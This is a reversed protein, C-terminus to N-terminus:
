SENEEVLLRRLVKGVFNKPLEKRFEIQWPVAYEDLRRQCLATLEEASITVGDKPVVYAKVKQFPWKPPQVGVVAVEKVKPHEYLVEEVDRPYVQYEGALIMDRKRAVIEFYGDDDMRAVDGTLLWGDRTIYKRSDEGANWYGLMVQPGRVALEGLQNAPLDKGTALDVIKAETSPFPIGITGIKRLSNLPNAHTGTTAETLGYAEVLRGRTLKEFAEQVEVPLPAAGSICAKISSIGFRRVGPYNNIAVYMTPVGPFITPRYRHIAKLVSETAFTPLIVMGAALAVPVNMAATMGYVHSFPLVSLFVERGEKLAPIWHRTQMANAVLNRHSLMVGKPQATTGSTYQILALDDPQVEIEPAHSGHQNIEASLLVMGHELQFPLRHGEKAERTLTFLARKLPPLYDKVNTFLIHKLNTRAKVIRATEALRTLTVLATAGADQIQRALEDPESLPTTFVVVGGMKLVGYYAIVTQPLNPLLLLVKDGPLLGKARLLNAFRSSERNLFRYSLRQGEFIIATKNPFRRAASRLLRHMPVRPVGVTYPVGEDYHDLWPREKRLRARDDDLPQTGRRGKAQPGEVFRELARNVAERRELMVMHASVGVDVEEANPIARAVEALLRPALVRDRNGRIVLTPMTLGRFLSWGNWIKFANHYYAQLAGPPSAITKKVFAAHLINLLQTPLSLLALTTPALRYEGSAAILVLKEVREPHATAYETVIAGGFSHGALVIQGPVQLIDLAAHLDALMEAVTYRSHPADSLGHGRLDLAIVRSDDSFKQLQYRWQGANGAFGHVFVFTRAPREPSIDIASLRVLPHTSVRVERRYLEIDIDM